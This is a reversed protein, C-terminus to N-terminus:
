TLLQGRPQCQVELRITWGIGEPTAASCSSKLLKGTRFRPQTRHAVAKAFSERIV